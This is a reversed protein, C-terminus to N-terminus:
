NNKETENSAIQRHPVLTRRKGKMEVRIGPIKGREAWYGISSLATKESAYHHKVIGRVAEGITCGPRQEVFRLVLTCTETFPTFRKAKSEGAACFTKHEPRLSKTIRSTDAGRHLPARHVTTFYRSTYDADIMRTNIEVLGIGMDRLLKMGLRRGDSPTREQPVAIYVLNARAGHSVWRQAQAMVDLGFSTKCEVVLVVSGRVGVVDPTTGDVPVEQYVDWGEDELWQVVAKGIQTEALRKKPPATSRRDNDAGACTSM